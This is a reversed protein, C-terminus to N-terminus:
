SNLILLESETLSLGIKKSVTGETTSIIGRTDSQYYPSEITLGTMYTANASVQIPASDGESTTESCLGLWRETANSTTANAKYVKGSAFTFLLYPRLTIDAYNESRISIQGQSSIGAFGYNTHTGDLWDKIQDTFDVNYFYWENEIISQKYAFEGANHTPKTNWTVTSSTFASTLRFFAIAGIESGSSAYFYFNVSILDDLNLSDFETLDFKFYIYNKSSGYVKTFLPDTGNYNVTPQNENVYTADTLTKRYDGGIQVSEGVDIDEGATRYSITQIRGSAVFNEGDFKVYASPKGWYFKTLDDDDDDIGFIFGSAEGTNDFDGTAIGSRMEVDGTGAVVDLVISKSSITGATLKDASIDTIYANGIVSLLALDGLGSVVSNPVTGSTINIAGKISLVGTSQNWSLGTNGGAIDGLIFNGSSDMYTKWSASDYYGMYTSSLYLGAGSPTSLTDPIDVLNTGWTAGVTADDEPKGEGTVGDWSAMTSTQQAIANLLLTRQNYYNNFLTNWTNRVIDTTTDMDSFVDLTTLLYFSLNDFAEDFDEDNVLLSAATVPITGTTPTGEVVIADWIQKVTLKEVPTIKEDDAIDDLRAKQALAETDDTYKTAVLWNAAVYAGTAKATVCKKLDGTTASLSTLWLDGVDYPTTPEAVFVRRKGDATDQAASAAELAAAIGTDPVIVWEYNPDTFLWRYVYGGGQTVTTGDLHESGIGTVGTLQNTSKGTYTIIDDECVITGASDFDSADVLDIETDETDITGDLTSASGLDYYLDGIHDSYDEEAWESAPLESTTPPTDGTTVKDYFYNTLVGDIQDQLDAIATAYTGSVFNDLETDDTWGADNTIESTNIDEPNTININGQIRLGNTTDYKLYKTSEGIAVGYLDDTYGLFGNLNGMRMRTNITDWPSGDHDFISIYPANTESATMYIGGDGAQRYNVISAGKKWTPNTDSVYMGDKDRDVGYSGILVGYVNFNSDYNNVLSYYWTNGNTSYVLIGNHTKVVTDVNYSIYNDADGGTPYNLIIFYDVGAQLTIRNAGTFNFTVFNFSGVTVTSVDVVDSTALISGPYSVSGFTGNHSRLTATLNGTPSEKKYLSFSCSDLTIETPNNFSQGYYHYTSDTYIRYGQNSSVFYSDITVVDGPIETIEMWEDDIGDKIRIIDGVALTTNNKTTVQCNDLATMDENLVDGDLVAFNGGMVSVVDKQFVSTRILGRCAINGVELLDPELTVGAGFIGSVYNSSRIRLNDGDITLYNGTSAGVRILSNVPDLLIGANAQSTGSRLYTSWISWGGITGWNATISGNTASIKIYQTNEYIGYLGTKDIYIGTGTTPSTPPITGFAISANGDSSLTVGTGTLTTSGIVWGGITGTVATINGEIVANNSYFDRCEITGKVGDIMFGQKKPQYNVSKIFNKIWLDDLKDSTIVENENTTTETAVGRGSSGGSGSSEGTNKIEGDSNYQKITNSLEGGIISDGRELLSNYPSEITEYNYNNINSM